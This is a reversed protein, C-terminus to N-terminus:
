WWMFQIISEHNMKMVVKAKFVIFHQVDYLYDMVVKLEICYERSYLHMMIFLHDVVVTGM